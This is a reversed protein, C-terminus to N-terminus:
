SLFEIIQEPEFPWGLEQESDANFLVPIREGYLAFLNDDFAIDEVKYQLGLQDLMQKAMECLHCVSTSFLVLRKDKALM